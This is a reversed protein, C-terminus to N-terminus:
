RNSFYERVFAHQQGETIKDTPRVAIKIKEFRHDDRLINLLEVKADTPGFLIVDKYHIIIEGLTKYFELLQHQEKHNMLNESKKFGLENEEHSFKSHIVKTKIPNVTLEIINATAHDMWIGLNNSTTM